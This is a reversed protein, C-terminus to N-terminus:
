TLPLEGQLGFDELLGESLFVRRGPVKIVGVAVSGPEDAELASLGKILTRIDPIVPPVRPVHRFVLANITKNISRKTRYIRLEELQESTPQRRWLWARHISVEGELLAQMIESPANVLEKVKSVNGTSTAAVAAIEHRVDVREAETLKSPGKYQGGTRQNSLAKTKFHPELELALRIRCSANLGKSRCHSQILWRLSEEDTLEYEICLITLRGQRLALDLRGYGNIVVRDRTIVVPERFAGEGQEALASLESAPVDLRLRVYSSHSRLEDVRFIALRCPIDDLGRGM